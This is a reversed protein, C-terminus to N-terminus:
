LIEVPVSTVLLAYITSQDEWILDCEVKYGNRGRVVQDPVSVTMLFDSKPM